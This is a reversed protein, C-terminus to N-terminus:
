KGKSDKKDSGKKDNSDTDPTFKKFVSGHEVIEGDDWDGDNNHIDNDHIEDSM